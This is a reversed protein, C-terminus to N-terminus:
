DLYKYVEVAKSFIGKKEREIYTFGLITGEITTADPLEAKFNIPFVNSDSGDLLHKYEELSKINIKSYGRWFSIQETEIIITPDFYKIKENDEKFEPTINTKVAGDHIIYGIHAKGSDLIFNTKVACLGYGLTWEPNPRITSEDQGEISEEDIAFEWYSCQKLDAESLEVIQKRIMKM